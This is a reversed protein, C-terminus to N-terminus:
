IGRVTWEVMFLPTSDGQLFKKLFYIHRPKALPDGPFNIPQNPVNFLVAAVANTQVAMDAALLIDPTLETPMSHNKHGGDLVISEIWLFVNDPYDVKRPVILVLYHWWISGDSDSSTLWEQSTFNLM